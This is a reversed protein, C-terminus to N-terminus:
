NKQSEIREKLYRLTLYIITPTMLVVGWTIFTGVSSPEAKQGIEVSLDSASAAVYFCIFGIFASLRYISKFFRYIM